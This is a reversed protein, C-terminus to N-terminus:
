LKELAVDDFRVQCEGSAGDIYTIGARYTMENLTQAGYGGVLPFANLWPQAVGDITMTVTKPGAGLDVIMAIRVWRGTVVPGSQSPTNSYNSSGGQGPVGYEQFDVRGDARLQAQTLFYSSGDSYYLSSLNMGACASNTERFMSWTARVRLHVGTGNFVINSSAKGGSGLAPTRALLSSPASHFSGQDVVPNGQRTWGALPNPSDFDECLIKKAPDLSECFRAPASGDLSTVVDTTADHTGNGGPGGDPNSKSADPAGANAASGNTLGDTSVLLSCGGMLLAVAAAAVAVRLAPTREEAAAGSTRVPLLTDM